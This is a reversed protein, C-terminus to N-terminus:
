GDQDLYRNGDNAHGYASAAMEKTRLTALSQGVQDRRSNLARSDAEDSAMIEQLSEGVRQVLTEADTRQQQTMRSKISEWDKRVSSMTRNIESLGDVLRQREGLIELLAESQGHSILLRQREALEKLKEYLAVQAQLLEIVEAADTSKTKQDEVM